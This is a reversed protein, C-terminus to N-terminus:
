EICLHIQAFADGGSEFAKQIGQMMPLLGFTKGPLPIMGAADNSQAIWTPFSKKLKIECSPACLHKTDCATMTICHTYGEATRRIAKVESVKYGNTSTAYNSANCLYSDTLPLCSFDAYINFTFVGTRKNARCDKLHHKGKKCLKFTGNKAGVNKVVEYHIPVCGSEAYINKFHTNGSKTASQLLLALDARNGALMVYYPREGKYVSAKNDVNWYYGDYASYGQLVVIGFHKDKGLRHMVANSIEQREMNLFAKVSEANAPPSFIFDSALLAVEKPRDALVREIVESIDSFARNGGQQKFKAPTLDLVFDRANCNQRYISDNIYNLKLTAVNADTLLTYIDTKFLTGGKVYGDISGSNEIYANLSVSTSHSEPAEPAEHKCYDKCSQTTCLLAILGLCTTAIINYKM